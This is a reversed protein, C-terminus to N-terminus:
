KQLFHVADDLFTLDLCNDTKSDMSHVDDDESLLEKKAYKWRTAISIINTLYRVFQIICRQTRSIQMNQTSPSNVRSLRKSLAPPHSRTKRLPLVTKIGSILTKVFVKLDMKKFKEMFIQEYLSKQVNKLLSKIMTQHETTYLTRNTM